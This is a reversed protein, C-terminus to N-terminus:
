WWVCCCCRHSLFRLAAGLGDLCTKDPQPPAHLCCPLDKAPALAPCPMSSGQCAPVGAEAPRVGPGNRPIRQRQGGFVAAGGGGAAGAVPAPARSHRSPAAVRM